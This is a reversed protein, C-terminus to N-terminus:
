NYGKNQWQRQKHQFMLDFCNKEAIYCTFGHHTNQTTIM